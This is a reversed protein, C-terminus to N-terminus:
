DQERLTRPRAVKKARIRKRLEDTDRALKEKKQELTNGSAELEERREKRYTALAEWKPLAVKEKHLEPGRDALYDHVLAPLPSLVCLAKWLPTCMGDNELKEPHNLPDYFQGPSRGHNLEGLLAEEMEKWTPYQVAWDTITQLLVVWSVIKEEVLSGQHMRNEITKHSDWSLLNVATYRGGNYNSSTTRQAYAWANPRYPAGEQTQECISRSVQVRNAQCFWTRGNGPGHSRSRPVFNRLLPQFLVQAYFASMVKDWSEKRMDLHVHLGNPKKNVDVVQWNNKRAFTCFLHVQEQIELGRLPPTIFEMGEISGDAKSGWAAYKEKDDKIAGWCSVGQQKMDRLQSMGPCRHTENEIGVYRSSSIVATPVFPTSSQNKPSWSSYDSRDHYDPDSQRQSAEQERCYRCISQRMTADVFGCRSCVPGAECESCIVPLRSLRTPDFPLREVPICWQSEQSGVAALQQYLNPHLENSNVAHFSNELLTARGCTLCHCAHTRSLPLPNVINSPTPM